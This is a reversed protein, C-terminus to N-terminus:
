RGNDQNFGKRSTHTASRRSSLMALRIEPQLAFQRFLATRRKSIKHQALYFASSQTLTLKM